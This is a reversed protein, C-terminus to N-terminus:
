QAALAFLRRALNENIIVIEASGSRDSVVFERGQLIPIGMTRFYGPGVFNYNFDVQIPNQSRETRFDTGVTVHDNLPM